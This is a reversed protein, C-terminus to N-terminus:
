FLNRIYGLVRDLDLPKPYFVGAIGKWKNTREAGISTAIIQKPSIWGVMVYGKLYYVSEDIINGENGREITDAIIAQPNFSDISEPIDRFVRVARVDHGEMGMVKELLRSQSPDDEILLVRLRGCDSRCASVVM